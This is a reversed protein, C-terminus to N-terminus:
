KEVPKEDVKMCYFNDEVEIAGLQKAWEFFKEKERGTYTIKNYPNEKWLKEIEILDNEYIKDRNFTIKWM